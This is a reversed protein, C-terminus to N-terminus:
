ARKIGNQIKTDKLLSSPFTTDEDIKCRSVIGGEPM